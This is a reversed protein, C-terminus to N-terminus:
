NVGGMEQNESLGVGEDALGNLACSVIQTLTVWDWTVSYDM